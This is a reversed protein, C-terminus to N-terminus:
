GIRALIFTVGFMIAIVFAGVLLIQLPIVGIIAAAFLFPFSLAISGAVSHSAMFIRGALIFYLLAVGFGGILSGYGAKGLLWVGIGDLASKLRASQNTVLSIAYAATRTDPPAVGPYGAVVTFLSPCINNLGPIAALFTVSGASNLQKDTTLLPISWATQLKTALTVCKGQLQAPSTSLTGSTYSGGSVTLSVTNVGNTLTSFYVPNGSITVTYAYNWTLAPTDTGNWYISLINQQYYNLPISYKLTAGDYIGMFFTDAPLDTPAVAYNVEYNVLWLQDGTVVLNQYVNVSDILISDPDGIVARVSIAPLITFLLLAIIGLFYILKRVM